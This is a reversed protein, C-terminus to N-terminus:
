CGSCGATTNNYNQIDHSRPRIIARDRWSCCSAALAASALTTMHHQPHSRAPLYFHQPSARVGLRAWFPGNGSLGCVCVWKNSILQLMTDWDAAKLVCDVAPSSSGQTWGRHQHSMTCKILKPWFTIQLSLKYIEYSACSMLATVTALRGKLLHEFSVKEMKSVIDKQINNPRLKNSFLYSTVRWVDLYLVGPLCFLLGPATHSCTSNNSPGESPM